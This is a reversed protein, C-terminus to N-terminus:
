ISRRSTPMKPTRATPPLVSIDATMAQAETTPLPPATLSHIVSDEQFPDGGWATNDWNSRKWNVVSNSADMEYCVLTTGEQRLGMRRLLQHRLRIDFARHCSQQGHDQYAPVRLAYATNDTTPNANANTTTGKDDKPKPLNDSESCSFTLPLALLLFLLSKWSTKM